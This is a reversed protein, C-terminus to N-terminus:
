CPPLTIGAAVLREYILAVIRLRLAAAKGFGSRALVPMETCPGAADSTSIIQWPEHLDPLLGVAERGLEDLLDLARGLEETPVNIRIKAASLNARSFNRVVGIEGNPVTFLESPRTTLLRPDDCGAARGHTVGSLYFVSCGRLRLLGAEPSYSM